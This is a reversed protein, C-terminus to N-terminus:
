LSKVLVDYNAVEYGVPSFPFNAFKDVRTWLINHPFRNM